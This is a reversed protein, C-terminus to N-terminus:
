PLLTAIASVIAFIAAAVMLVATLIAAVKLKAARFYNGKKKLMISYLM